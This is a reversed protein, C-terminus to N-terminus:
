NRKEPTLSLLFNDDHSSIIAIRVPHCIERVIMPGYINRFSWISDKFNIGSVKGAVIPLTPVPRPFIGKIKDKFRGLASKFFYTKWRPIAVGKLYETDRVLVKEIAEFCKPCGVYETVFTGNDTM